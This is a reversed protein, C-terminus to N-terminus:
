KGSGVKERERRLPTAPESAPQAVPQAATAGPAAAAPKRQGRKRRTLPKAVRSYREYADRLWYGIREQDDVFQRQKRLDARLFDYFSPTDPPPEDLQTLELMREIPWGTAKQVQHWAHGTPLTPNTPSFWASLTSRNVGIKDALKVHSGIPPKNEYWMWDQLARAFPTLSGYAEDSMTKVM